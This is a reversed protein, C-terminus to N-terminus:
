LIKISQVAREHRINVEKNLEATLKDKQCHPCNM